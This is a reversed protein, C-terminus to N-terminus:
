VVLLYYMYAIYVMFLVMGEVRSLRYGTRMFPLLLLSSGFMVGMDAWNIQDSHIPSLTATVGLVALINFINSGVVNGIAIDTRKKVAAVLSTALEPMSTGTAVITLGIVAESWGLKRAIIVANDVLLGSGWILLAFGGLIFVVDLLWHRSVRIEEEEGLPLKGQKAKYISLLVYGCIGISFLIGVTRSLYGDAFFLLFLLSAGLMIPMDSRILQRNVSLPYIIASLGLIVCVNFINSGIVNGIAISGMGNLASQISVVLEPASTGFAVVTLGIILPTIGLRMAISSSGRVLFDAGFYLVGLSVVLLVVPLVM